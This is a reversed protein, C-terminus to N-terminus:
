LAGGDASSSPKCPSPNVDFALSYSVLRPDPSNAFRHGAVASYGTLLDMNSPMSGMMILRHQESRSVLSADDSTDM